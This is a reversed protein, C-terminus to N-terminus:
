ISTDRNRHTSNRHDPEISTRKVTGSLTSSACCAGGSNKTTGLVIVVIGSLMHLKNHNYSTSCYKYM